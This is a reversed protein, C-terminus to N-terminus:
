LQLMINSYFEKGEEHFEALGAYKGAVMQVSSLGIGSKEKKRSIFVGNKKEDRGDSSNVMTIYLCCDEERDASLRIYRDGIAVRECAAM